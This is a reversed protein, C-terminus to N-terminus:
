VTFSGEEGLPSENPDGCVGGLSECETAQLSQAINYETFTRSGQWGMSQALWCYSVLEAELLTSCTLGSGYVGVEYIPDNNAINSFGYNIGKFYDSIPGNVDAQSADYDVAFYIPTSAPQNITTSAYQYAATGDEIGQNYSFYDPSTPFGNEWVAVIRLGAATLKQAESATLNKSQDNINYYRGVFGYGATALGSAFNSLDVNCDFGKKM